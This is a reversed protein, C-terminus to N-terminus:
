MVDMDKGCLTGNVLKAATLRQFFVAMAVRLFVFFGALVAALAFAGAFFFAPLFDTFDVLGAFAAVRGAALGAAGRLATERLGTADPRITRL